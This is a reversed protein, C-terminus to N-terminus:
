LYQTLKELSCVRSTLGPQPGHMHTGIYVSSLQRRYAIGDKRVGDSAEDLILVLDVSCIFSHLCDTEAQYVHDKVTDGAGPPTGLVNYSIM